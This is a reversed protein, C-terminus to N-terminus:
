HFLNSNPKSFINKSSSINVHLSIQNYTEIPNIKNYKYKMMNATFAHLQTNLEM